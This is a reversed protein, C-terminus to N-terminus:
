SACPMQVPSWGLNQVSGPHLRSVKILKLAEEISEVPVSGAIEVDGVQTVLGGMAQIRAHVRKVGRASRYFLCIGLQGPEGEDAIYGDYGVIADHRDDQGVFGTRGAPLEGKPKRYRAPPVPGGDHLNRVRFRHKRAYEVLNTTGAVVSIPSRLAATPCRRAVHHKVLTETM